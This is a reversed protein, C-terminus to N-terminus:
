EYNYRRCIGASHGAATTDEITEIDDDLEDVTPLLHTQTSANNSNNRVRVRRRSRQVAATLDREKGANRAASVSGGPGVSPEKGHESQSVLNM